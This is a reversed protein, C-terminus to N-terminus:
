HCGSVFKEHGETSAMTTLLSEAYRTFTRALTKAHV